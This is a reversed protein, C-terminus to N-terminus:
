SSSCRSCAARAARHGGAGEIRRLEEDVVAQYLTAQERTLTCVVKM